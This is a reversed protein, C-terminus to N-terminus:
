ATRWLAIYHLGCYHDSSLANKGDIRLKLTKLGAAAIPIGAQIKRVNNVLPNSYLDFSAVEAADIDIDLIGYATHTRTLLLLTYTGADLYVKYSINDGDNHTSNYFIANFWYLASIDFTWTGQGISNYSLPIITIHGEGGGGAGPTIDVTVKGGGEDTVKGGGGEFNVTSADAVKIDDEQIEITVGSVGGIIGAGSRKLFQGDAVAGMLLDTPGGSERLRKGVAELLDSSTFADSGGSKHTDKHPQSPISGAGASNSIWWGLRVTGEDGFIVAWYDGITFESTDHGQYPVFRNADDVRITLLKRADDKAKIQGVSIHTANIDREARKILAERVERAKQVIRESRRTM